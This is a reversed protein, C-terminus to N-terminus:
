NGESHSPNFVWNTAIINQRLNKVNNAQSFSLSMELQVIFAETLLVALRVTEAQFWIFRKWPTISDWINGVVMSISWYFGFKATSHSGPVTQMAKKPFRETLLEFKPPRFTRDFKGDNPFNQPLFRTIGICIWMQFKTLSKVSPEHLKTMCIQWMPWYFFLDSLSNQTFQAEYM